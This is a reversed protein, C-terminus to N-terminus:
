GINYWGRTIVPEVKNDPKGAVFKDCEKAPCGRMNGTVIIYECIVLKDTHGAEITGHYKCRKCKEKHRDKSSM